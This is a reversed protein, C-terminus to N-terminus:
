LYSLLGRSEIIRMNLTNVILFNKRVNPWFYRSRFKWGHTKPNIERSVFVFETEEKNLM